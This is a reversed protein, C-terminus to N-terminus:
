RTIGIKKNMGRSSFRLSFRNCQISISICDRETVGTIELRQLCSDSGKDVSPWLGTVMYSRGKLASNLLPHESKPIKVINRRGM